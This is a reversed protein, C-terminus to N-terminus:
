HKSLLDDCCDRSQSISPNRPSSLINDGVNEASLPVNVTHRRHMLKSRHPVETVDDHKVFEGSCGTDAKVKSQDLTEVSKLKTKDFSKIALQSSLFFPINFGNGM